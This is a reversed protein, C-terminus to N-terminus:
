KGYRKKYYNEIKKRQAKTLGKRWSHMPQALVKDVLDKRGLAEVAPLFKMYFHKAIEYFGHWQTYDPGMMAAGHRARRGEHHWLEFYIWKINHDFPSATIKKSRKLETMIKKAPRAFKDNYLDVASDFNIFFNNVWQDGHCAACVSKMLARKAKWNKLRKSIVPRLTWSIRAGVDHSAKMNDTASMHCTACTPAAYYDIGVKWSASGMNMKDVNAHFAIGHKSEEYIEKQPHDPGMHCKGCNEPRRAQARSFSHRSHCASCSGKSGDPNLRGIGTNPWTAPDLKGKGLVRVKSGHCQLCGNTVAPGGEIVAGLLNDLSALINGASAHHSKQFEKSERAHCRGCDKPSVITAITKGHHEFADPEGKKAQHCSHCGVPNKGKYHASDKWQKVLAPTIGSHCDICASDAKSLPARGARPRAEATRPGDKECGVALAGLSLTFVGMTVANRARMTTLRM